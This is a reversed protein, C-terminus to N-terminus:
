GLELSALGYVDGLGVAPPEGRYMRLMTDVSEFGLLRMLPDGDANAGPVDILVVGPHSDLMRRLLREALQPNDALLPGIRWGEGRRLLCPRIRGFGHCAGQRDVLALVRGGSQNLWDALFHPRPTPERQADYAQVARSPLDAGEVLQLGDEPEVMAEHGSAVLQWRRTPSAPEFGWRRYDEVREQAAELGICPLDELHTMAHRWLALGHGLGRYAPEVLFLGIFGYAANYRVGAICGIPQGNLERLWLGQRDTHRYVAVDGLGPCFGAERAWGVVTPIDQRRLPRISGHVM